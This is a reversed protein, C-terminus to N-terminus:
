SCGASFSFYSSLGAEPSRNLGAVQMIKKCLLFRRMITLNFHGQGSSFVIQLHHMLLEKMWV